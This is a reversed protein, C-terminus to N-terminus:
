SPRFVTPERSMQAFTFNHVLDRPAAAACPAALGLGAALEGVVQEPTQGAERLARVAIAGHRKSLRKGDSGLVLPLHAFRPRRASADGARLLDGLLLQRATSSLLDDGRVVEDIGMAVDDVTVALQYAWLGDARRLVFDGVRAALQVGVPCYSGTLHTLM